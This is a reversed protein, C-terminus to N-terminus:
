STIIKSFTNSVFSNSFPTDIQLLTNNSVNTIIRTYNDIKILNGNSFLTLFSTSNGTVTNSVTSVTVTGTAPIELETTIATSSDTIHESSISVKGFMVTGVPHLNNKVVNEYKSKNLATQIEYSYEQYYRSDQIFKDSSLFGRTNRWRGTGKGQTQVIARGVVAFPSGQKEMTVYEGPEFGYGSDVVDVSTVVGNAFGADASIIANNGKIGGKAPDPILLAAVDANIMTVFPDLRYGSGPTIARLYAISGVEEIELILADGIITNINVGSMKPFSYDAEDKFHNNASLSATFVADVTLLTNNTVSTIMRRQKTTDTGIQIYSNATYTSIFTTATGIVNSQGITVNVTGTQPNTEDFYTLREALHDRIFDRNLVIEEIDFLGGIRFSAGSGGGDISDIVGSGTNSGGIISSIFGNVYTNSSRVYNVVNGTNSYQSLVFEGQVDTIIFQTNGNSITGIIGNAIQNNSANYQTIVEGQTFSNAFSETKYMEFTLATKFSAGPEWGATVEKLVVQNSNASFVYGNAINDDQYILQGPRINSNATTTTTLAIRSQVIPINDISYGSGSAELTFTVKGDLATTEVVRAKGQQGKGSVTLIDGPAFNAGGNIVSLGSLSGIIKPLNTTQTPQSALRIYEGRAFFGRVNSLEFVEITKNEVVVQQYNEVIGKAGSGIGIIEKNVYDGINEVLSVEIYVPRFWEGDSLRLMDQGPSYIKVDENYLARFLIDYSQENGKNRYLDLAKKIFLRGTDGQASPINPVYKEEFKKLYNNPTLDIDRYDLLERAVQVPKGTSQLWVYYQRLFEIFQPGDENYFSPIQKAIFIDINTEINRM